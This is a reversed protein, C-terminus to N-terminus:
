SFYSIYLLLMLHLLYVGMIGGDQLIFQQCTEQLVKRQDHICNYEGSMIHGVCKFTFHFDPAEVTLTM